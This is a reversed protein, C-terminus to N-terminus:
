AGGAAPLADIMQLVFQTDRFTAGTQDDALMARGLAPCRPASVIFIRQRSRDNAQRCLVAAVAVSADRRQQSGFAPM